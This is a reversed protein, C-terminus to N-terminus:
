SCHRRTDAAAASGHQDQAGADALWRHWETWLDRLLAKVSYRMAAVHAHMLGCPVVERRRNTHVQGFPCASPGRRTRALYETKKRDYAERYRGHGARVISMGLQYCVSRGQASWCAQAGRRLRPAAGGVVHMGLYAWLKGVNAFRDLPGTVALLRAFGPLGIGPAAEIWGRLAHRRGLRALELNIAHETRALDDAAAILPRRWAEALGDREMARARNGLAIRTQQIDWLLRSYHAM